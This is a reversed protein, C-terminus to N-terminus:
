RRSQRAAASQRLASRWVVLRLVRFLRLCVDPPPRQHLAPVAALPAALRLRSFFFAKFFLLVVLVLPPAFYFLSSVSFVCVCVCLVYWMVASPPAYFPCFLRLLAYYFLSLSCKGSVAADDLVALFRANVDRSLAVDVAQFECAFGFGGSLRVVGSVSGLCSFRLVGSVLGCRQWHRCARVCVCVVRRIALDMDPLHDAFQVYDHALNRVARCILPCSLSFPLTCPFRSELLAVFVLWGWGWILGLILGLILVLNVGLNLGVWFEIEFGFGFWM